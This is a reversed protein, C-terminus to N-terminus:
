VTPDYDRQRKGMVELHMSNLSIAKQSRVELFPNMARDYTCRSDMNPTHGFEGFIVDSLNLLDM